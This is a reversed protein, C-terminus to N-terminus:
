NCHNNIMTKAHSNGLQDAQHWDSCAGQTNGSKYKSMGRFNYADGFQPNLEIAKSFDAIAGTFDGANHKSYGTDYFYKYSNSEGTKPNDKEKEKEKMDEMLAKSKESMELQPYQSQFSRQEITQALERKAALKEEHTLVKKSKSAPETKSVADTTKKNCGALAIVVIILIINLKKM